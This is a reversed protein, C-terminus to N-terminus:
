IWGGHQTCYADCCEHCPMGYLESSQLDMYTAVCESKIEKTYKPNIDLISFLTLFMTRNDEQFNNFDASCFADPVKLHSHRVDEKLLYCSGRTTNGILPLSKNWNTININRCDMKVSNNILDVTLNYCREKERLPVSKAVSENMLVNYGYKRCSEAIEAVPFKRIRILVYNPSINEEGPPKIYEYREM